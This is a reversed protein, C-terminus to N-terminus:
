SQIKVTFVTISFGGIHSGAPINSVAHLAGYLGCANNITQKFWIIEEEKGSGAYEQRLAEEKAKCDEYASSTPFVLVLALAPHPLLDPDDLSLIDQFTLDQSVGLSHILQSFIFPNSELPFFHKRHRVEDM